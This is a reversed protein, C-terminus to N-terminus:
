VSVLATRRRSRTSRFQLSAVTLPSPSPPRRRGLQEPQFDMMLLIEDEVVSRGDRSLSRVRHGVRLDRILVRDGAVLQVWDDGSYCGGSTALVFADLQEWRVPSPCLCFPRM